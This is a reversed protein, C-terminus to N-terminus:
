AALTCHECFGGFPYPRVPEGVTLLARRVQCVPLGVVNNICGEVHSVLRRGQGQLAYAGAKDFPEGTAVYGAIQLDSYEHMFVTSIVAEHHLITPEGGTARLVVFGTVVYHASGRLLALMNLADEADRPKGLTRGPGVVVTDAGLLISGPAIKDHYFLAVDTAKRWAWLRPDESMSLPFPPALQLVPIEFNPYLDSGREEIDSALSQFETVIRQILELRRPSGSALILM